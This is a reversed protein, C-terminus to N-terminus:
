RFFFSCHLRLVCQLGFIYNNATFYIYNCSIKYSSLILNFISSIQNVCQASLFLVTIGFWPLDKILHCARKMVVIVPVRM